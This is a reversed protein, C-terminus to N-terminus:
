RSKVGTPSTTPAECTKHAAAMIGAVADELIGMARHPDNPNCRPACNQPLANLRAIIIEFIKRANNNAVALPILVSRRELEERYLREADFRAMLARTHISICASIQSNKGEIMAEQLLRWAEDSVQIAAFLADDLSADTPFDAGKRRPEFYKKRRRRATASVESEEEALQKAIQRPNTSAKTSAHAERWLGAAEFSDLPMGKAVLKSIYQHSVKWSRALDAKTIM